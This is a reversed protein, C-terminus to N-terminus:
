ISGDGYLYNDPSNRLESEFGWDIVQNDADIERESLGDHTSAGSLRSHELLVHALEHAITYIAVDKTDNLIDSSLCVLWVNIPPPFDNKNQSPRPYIVFMDSTCNIIPVVFRVGRRFMLVDRDEPPIRKLM